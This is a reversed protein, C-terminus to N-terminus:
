AGVPTGCLSADAELTVTEAAQAKGSIHAVVLRNGVLEM